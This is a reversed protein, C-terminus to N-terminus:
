TTTDVIKGYEAVLREMMNDRSSILANLSCALVLNATDGEITINNRGNRASTLVIDSEQQLTQLLKINTNLTNIKTILKQHQGTM